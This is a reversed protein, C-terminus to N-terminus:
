LNQFILSKTKQALPCCVRDAGRIIIGAETMKPIDKSKRKAVKIYFRVAYSTGTINANVLM